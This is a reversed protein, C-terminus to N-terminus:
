YNNRLLVWLNRLVIRKSIFRIIGPFFRYLRFRLTARVDMEFMKEDFLPILRYNCHLCRNKIVSLAAHLFGCTIGTTAPDDLGWKLNFHFNRFHIVKLTDNMLRLLPIRIDHLISIASSIKKAAKNNPIEAKGAANSSKTVEKKQNNKINIVRSLRLLSIKIDGTYGNKDIKFSFTLDFAAIFIVLVVLLLVLLVFFLITPWM